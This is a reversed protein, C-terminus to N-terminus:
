DALVALLVLAGVTVGAGAVVPLSAWGNGTLGELVIVIGPLLYGYAMVKSAPLRVSAYQLLFVSVASPLTALYAIGWWVEAPLGTWDTTVIGRAGYLAICATTGVLMWFTLVVGPENRNFKRMLPAILAYAACGVLFIAEGPGLAFRSIAELDAEFIVWLAGLAAIVISVMVVPRTRQGLLVLGFVATLLPTLTFVASTAVPATMTLAIFMTVFYAGNLVGYLGFRWPREPIELRHGMIAFTFIGMLVAAILFRIANLPGPDLEPVIRAGVTFSGAVFTAFAVMALHGLLRQRGTAFHAPSAASSM